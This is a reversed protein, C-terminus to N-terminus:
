VGVKTRFYASLNLHAKKAAAKVIKAQHENLSVTIKVSGLASNKTGTSKRGAGSRAGGHRIEDLTTERMKELRTRMQKTMLSKTPQSSNEIEKEYSTLIPRHLPTKM